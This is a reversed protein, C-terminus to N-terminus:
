HDSVSARSGDDRQAQEQPRTATSRAHHPEAVLKLATALVAADDTFGLVPLVDPIVDFPLVFYALAGVLTAKVHAADRPRVRLLLGRASGRRVPHQAAVRRSSAGSTAACRAEDDEGTTRTWAAAAVCAAGIVGALTTAHLATRHRCAATLAKALKDMAEALKIDRETVGGADHTSLTVEVQRTSTSGNRITIWRRRRSLAARTM